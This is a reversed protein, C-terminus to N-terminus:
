GARTVSRRASATDGLRRARRWSPSRSGTSRSSRSAIPRRALAARRPDAHRRADLRQDPYEFKALPGMQQRGARHVSDATVTGSPVEVRWIKGDYSTILAKSDPTFASGPYVDRDNAGGGQSNDRQVDM